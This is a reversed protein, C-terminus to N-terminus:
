QSLLRASRFLPDASAVIAWRLRPPYDAPLADIFARVEAATQVSQYGGLTRDAWRKPFFIDGTRQIERVLELAPRVHKRSEAARLPHHLYRMAELVWAEHTRNTADKLSEFFRDRVAPDRSLAPMVFQFRARRDPNAFRELQATLLADAAEINRVALDLALDAEDTEALPLGPIKVDRRWVRELWAISAPTLAMSRFAGFWAAKQSTTKARDLGSRLVVEIDPALAARDDAATFRWFAARTYDLMQQVTLEDAERPLAAILAALVRGPAVRGELMSEWLAVLAAGRTMPDALEHLSTAFFEISSPDLDFDGYGLGRGVPLVWRPAPLGVADPVATEDGALVVDFTRTGEDLAVIVQLRQTWRLNRGRRDDQVFALRDITGNTVGLATRVTPRGAEEVWARSWAALDEATRADLTRVLDPWGANDLAHAKLYERLGDRFAGEGVLLELQRMVIPAKQYIIAGYLSGADNLNTLPQRIPNAGDTRDVEYAAPYHQYLFRLDHNITPFSPNVIKAAMFNAFVEKMWVDDFWRMTVLDGFWMHATEHSIVSARALHQNKTAAEDLLLGNANYYVAGAHEMGGFQFSPILVFDFKGFPYPIATYAELWALARAHLDFIVDRNRALKAADTERHFMRFTRGNRVATEIRFKGAAFAFLYTPLPATEDFILGLHDRATLRGAERGNSVATWDPPIDMALRWRAKLDPQDFCPFALSARAPVFLSYLFEDQRNLPQDGLHFEFEVTNRGVTLADRRVVVHDDVVRRELPLGNASFALLRDSPQAFDFALARAADSLDFSVTLRGHIPDTRAPPVRLRLDYELASVRAARDAALALPVGAAAPPPERRALYWAAAGGAILAAVLVVGVGSRRM